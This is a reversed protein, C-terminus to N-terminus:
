YHNMSVADNIPSQVSYRTKLSDGQLSQSSWGLRARAFRNREAKTGINRAHKTRSAIMSGRSLQKRVLMTIGAM